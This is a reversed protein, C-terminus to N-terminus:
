APVGLLRRLDAVQGLHYATHDAALLLERVLSQGSGYPVAALLEGAPDAAMQKLAALDGRYRDLLERWQEEGEPAPAEPWYGDPFAPSVHRPNRIFELIDWQAITIHYILQWVTHALGEPKAGLRSVPFEAALAEFGLHAGGGSLLFLLQDRLEQM